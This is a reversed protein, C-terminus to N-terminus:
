QACGAAVCGVGPTRVDIGQSASRPDDGHDQTYAVAMGTVVVGLAIMGVKRWDVARRTSRQLDREELECEMDTHCREYYTNINRPQVTTCGQTSFGGLSMLAVAGITMLRDKM